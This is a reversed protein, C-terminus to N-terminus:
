SDTMFKDFIIQFKWIFYMKTMPDAAQEQQQMKEMDYSGDEIYKKANARSMGRGEIIINVIIQEFYYHLDIM